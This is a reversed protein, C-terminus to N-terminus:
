GTEVIEMIEHEGLALLDNGIEATSGMKSGTTTIARLLTIDFRGEESQLGVNGVGKTFVWM